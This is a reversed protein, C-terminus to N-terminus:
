CVALSTYVDVLAHIGPQKSGFFYLHQVPDSQGGNVEGPVIVALLVLYQLAQLTKRVMESSLEVFSVEGLHKDKGIEVCAGFLVQLPNVSQSIHAKVRINHDVVLLM